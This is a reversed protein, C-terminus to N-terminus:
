KTTSKRKLLIVIVVVILVVLFSLLVINNKINSFISLIPNDYIETSNSVYRDYSYNSYDILVKEKGNANYTEDSSLRITKYEGDEEEFRISYFSGSYTKENGERLKTFDTLVINLTSDKIKSVPIEKEEILRKAIYTATRKCLVSDLDGFEQLLENKNIKADSHSWSYGPKSLTYSPM